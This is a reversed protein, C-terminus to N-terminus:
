YVTFVESTERDLEMGDRDVLIFTVTFTGTDYFPITGTVAAADRDAEPRVEWMEFEEGQAGSDQNTVVAWITAPEDRFGELAFEVSFDCCPNTAGLEVATIDGRLPHPDEDVIPGGERTLVFVTLPGLVATVVLGVIWKWRTEGAQGAAPVPGHGPPWSGPQGSPPGYPGATGFPAQHGGPAGAPGSQQGWTGSQTHM